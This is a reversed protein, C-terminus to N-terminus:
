RGPAAGAPVIGLLEVDFVLVQNPPIKAGAGREGYALDSPLWFTYKSGVPMLQVGETWGPIVQDLRFQAPMGRAVSSDFVTGDPLTGHYHVKVVDTAKPKPGDGQKLVKYQLGSATTKVGEKKMNEALFQKGAPVNKAGQDKMMAEMKQQEAAAKAQMQQQVQGFVAELEEDSLMPQAGTLADRIGRAVLAPDPSMGDEKLSRGVNLGLGYSLKQEFTKLEVQGGPAAPAAPQGPQQALAVAVVAIPLCTMGAILGARRSVPWTM